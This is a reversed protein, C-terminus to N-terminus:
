IGEQRKSTSFRGSLLDRLTRTYLIHETQHINEEIKELTTGPVIRVPEQALIRGHDIMEDVIHITVGTIKVGHEWARRISDTGPFSPLLSPHINVIRERWRSVFGASLIRMFGALVIFCSGSKILLDQLMDECKEKSCEMYPLIRTDIGLKSAEELGKATPEDSAVFAIRADLLGSACNHAIALMNTGRGSILIAITPTM